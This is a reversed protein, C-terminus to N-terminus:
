NNPAFCGASDCTGGWQVSSSTRIAAAISRAEFVPKSRTGEKSLEGFPRECAWTQREVRAYTCSCNSGLAMPAASQCGSLTRTTPAHHRPARATQTCNQFSADVRQPM